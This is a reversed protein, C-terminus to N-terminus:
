QLLYNLISEAVKIGDIASSVIGGAYGAGEGCPYLGKVNSSEYTEHNRMIRVPSSSRTEGCYIAVNSFPPRGLKAIMKPISYKLTSEIYEPLIGNINTPKTRKCSSDEPLSKSVTNNLFDSLRSVPIKNADDGAAFIKREISEQFFLGELAPYNEDIYNVYDKENVPVLFAANAKKGARTSWSMGNTTIMSESSTCPMVEGGPCMCFTYCARYNEEEKRTLRFSAAGLRKDGAFKGYQTTDVYSQPLEVRVGIAFPKPALHIGSVSLYKYVDRASHGTALICIDTEIVERSTNIQAVSEHDIRMSDMRTNFQFEGGLKIIKERIKPIIKLLMDSGLHPEADILITEDAGAEVLKEFFYRTTQRDKSRATLKGDSFLGAGGEGYLINSDANLKGTELYHKIEYARDRAHSGRELVIPPVGNEALVLAAMLGAPGAGVIVPKKGTYNQIKITNSKKTSPKYLQIDRSKMIKATTSIEVTMIYAPHHRADLSRRIIKLYKVDKSKLRTAQLVKKLVLQDTYDLSVKIQNIRYIM